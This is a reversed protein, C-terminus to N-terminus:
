SSPTALSTEQPSSGVVEVKQSDVSLTPVPTYLWAPRKNRSNYPSRMVRIISKDNKAANFLVANTVSRRTSSCRALWNPTRAVGVSKQLLDIIKKADDETYM